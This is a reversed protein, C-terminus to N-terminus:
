KEHEYNQDLGARTPKKMEWFSYLNCGMLSILGNKGAGACGAPRIMAAHKVM